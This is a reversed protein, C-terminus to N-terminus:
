ALAIPFVYRGRAQMAHPPLARTPVRRTRNVTTQRPDAFRFSQPNHLKVEHRIEACGKAFFRALKRRQLAPSMSLM